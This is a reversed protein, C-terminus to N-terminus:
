PLQIFSFAHGRRRRKNDDGKDDIEEKFTIIDSVWSKADIKQTAPNEETIRRMEDGEDNVKGEEVLSELIDLLNKLLSFAKIMKSLGQTRIQKKSSTFSFRILDEVVLLGKDELRVISLVANFGMIIQLFPFKINEIDEQSLCPCSNIIEKLYSYGGLVLKLRDKYLKSSTPRAAYEGTSADMIAKDNKMLILRMDLKMVLNDKRNSDSITEGWHIFMHDNGGFFTEFVYSWFKIVYDQESYLKVRDSNFYFAKKLHMNLNFKHIDKVNEEDNTTNRYGELTILAKKLTTASEVM